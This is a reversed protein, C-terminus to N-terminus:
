KTIQSGSSLRVHFLEADTAEFGLQDFERHLMPLVRQTKARGVLTRDLLDPFSGASPPKWVGAEAM